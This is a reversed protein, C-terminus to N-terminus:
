DNGQNLNKDGMMRYSMLGLLAIVMIIGFWILKKSPTKNEVLEKTKTKDFLKGVDVKTLNAPISDRFYELDYVPAQLDNGFVMKYQHGPELWVVISQKLQSARVGTFNLPENNNNEVRVLLEKEKEALLTLPVQGSIVEFYGIADLSTKKRKKRDLYESRRYITAQRRYFHPGEVIFELKNVYQATDFHVTVWTAHDKTSDASTIKASPIDVYRGQIVDPAVQWAGMVNLPSTTSDNITLQYFKYDSMPFDFVETIVKGSTSGFELNFKEKLAYWTKRDDSGRLVATKSVESNKIELLFNDITNKEENFLTVTTCCNKTLETEIRFERKKFTAYEFRDFNRVYSVETGKEDLIRLNRYDDKVLATVRPPLPIEYFSKKEVSALPAEAVYTQAKVSVSILLLFIIKKM